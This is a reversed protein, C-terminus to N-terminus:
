FYHREAPPPAAPAPRPLLELPSATACVKSTALRLYKATTALSRHGLLLQITRVDAGAELLHVAFAHRLGHPTVPKSLGSLRLAKQCADGVADRTIPEAPRDGPFLWERPRALKYYNRLIELLAPSLMVYRDKQGKGQEVRIVMRQSDIAAPKLHVAESIRLGAAYCTTLIARHKVSKVCALFQQVEGPSLVIPLTQPKKPLPLVDEVTWDRKLTVKYLFRLAAIATHISGPSLKKEATLHIQYTRIDEEGLEAPSKGFHRAFCSVQQLYSIQTNLALNRLQMDETMRQRLISM